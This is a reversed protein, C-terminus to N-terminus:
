KKGMSIRRLFAQSDRASVEGVLISAYTKCTLENRKVYMDEASLKEDAYQTYDIGDCIGLYLESLQDVNYKPNIIGKCENFTQRDVLRDAFFQMQEVSFKPNAFYESARKNKKATWIIRMQEPTLKPNSVIMPDVGNKKAAIIEKKQEDSYRESNKMPKEAKTKAPKEAVPKEAKVPKAAKEVPKEVKAAKEAKNRVIHEAVKPEPMKKKLQQVIEVFDHGPYSAIMPVGNTVRYIGNQLFAVGRKQAAACASLLVDKKVRSVAGSKDVVVYGLTRGTQSVYVALVVRPSVGNQIALRKFSGAGEAIKPERGKTDIDFNIPKISANGVINSLLMKDTFTGFNCVKLDGGIFIATLAREKLEKDEKSDLVVAYM